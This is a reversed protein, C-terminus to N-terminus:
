QAGGSGDDDAAFLDLQEEARRAAVPKEKKECVPRPIPIRLIDRARICEDDAFVPHALQERAAAIQRESPPTKKPKRFRAKKRKPAQSDMARLAEIQRQDGFCLKGEISPLVERRDITVPSLSM